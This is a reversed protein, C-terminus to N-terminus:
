STKQAAKSSGAGSSKSSKKSGKEPKSDASADTSSKAESSESKASSDGAGSEESSKTEGGAESKADGTEGKGAYDTIYWGSGKFQFAPASVKKALRGGCEECKPPRARVKLLLEIVEGCETCQYEYLPM